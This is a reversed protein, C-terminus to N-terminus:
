QATGGGGHGAPSYDLEAPEPPPGLRIFLLALAREISQGAPPAAAATEQPSLPAGRLEPDPEPEPPPLSDPVSAQTLTRLESPSVNGGALRIAVPGRWARPPDEVTMEGLHRAVSLLSNREPGDGVRDVAKLVHNLLALLEDHRRRQDEEATLLLHALERRQEQLQDREMDLRLYHRRWPFLFLQFEFHAMSLSEFAKKLWPVLRRENSGM